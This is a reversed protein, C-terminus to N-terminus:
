TSGATDSAAANRHMDAVAYDNSLRFSLWARVLRLGFGTALRWLIAGQLRSLPKALFIHSSGIREYHYGFKAALIEMGRPSYFFVHQGTKPSIYEWEPGQGRYPNTGVIVAAAGRQFLPALEQAPQAMHEAVEFLCVIDPKSGDDGFGAALANVAYADSWRADFGQDRLLRTLLGVGGGFDIVKADSPARIIRSLVFILAASNVSRVGSGTDSDALNSGAYAEALWYPPETQLSGCNACREYGVDHRGLVTTRFALGTNGDCLRCVNM